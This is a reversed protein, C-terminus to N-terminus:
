KHPHLIFRQNPYGFEELLEAEEFGFRKYLARPATGKEDEERFTSVTIARTKDLENLATALLASAIGLRRYQPHVGLCCIMNHSRSFLLVGAIRDNAKACLAQHKGMFRLVTQKHNEIAEPTELGPFNWAILSVLDMWLHIDSAAGYQIKM